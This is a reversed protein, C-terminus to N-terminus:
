LLSESSSRAPWPLSHLCLWPKLQAHRRAAGTGRVSSDAGTPGPKAQASRRGDGSEKWTWSSIMLLSGVSSSLKRSTLPRHSLPTPAPHAPPDPLTRVRRRRVQCSIMAKWTSLDISTRLNTMPKMSSAHYTATGPGPSRGQQWGGEEKISTLSVYCLRNKLSRNLPM